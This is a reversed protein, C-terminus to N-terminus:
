HLYDSINPILIPLFYHLACIVLYTGIVAILFAPLSIRGTKAFGEAKKQKKPAIWLKKQFLDNNEQEESASIMNWIVANKRLAFRTLASAKVGLQSLTKASDESSCGSDALAGIIKKASLNKCFAYCLAVLVALYLCWLIGALPDAFPNLFFLKFM